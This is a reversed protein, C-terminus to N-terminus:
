KSKMRNPCIAEMKKEYITLWVLKEIEGIIIEKWHEKLRIKLPRCTECKYVKGYNCPISYVYNKIMYETRLKVRFLHKRLTLGSRFITKIDSPSSIKQIMEALGKVYPLSFIIVKRTNNKTMRDLNRPASRINESNKNRHLNDRLSNM